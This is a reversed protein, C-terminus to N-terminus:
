WRPKAISFRSPVNRDAHSSESPHYQPASVFTRVRDQSPAVPEPRWQHAGAILVSRCRRSVRTAAVTLCRPRVMVLLARTRRLDNPAQYQLPHAVTESHARLPREPDSARLSMEVPSWRLSTPRALDSSATSRRRTPALNQRTLLHQAMLDRPRPIWYSRNNM